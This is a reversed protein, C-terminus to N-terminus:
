YIKLVKEKVYQFNDFDTLAFGDKLLQGFKASVNKHVISSLVMQQYDSTASLYLKETEGQYPATLEEQANLIIPSTKLIKWATSVNNRITQEYRGSRSYRLGTTYISERNDSLFDYFDELKEYEVSKTPVCRGKLTGMRKAWDFLTFTQVGVEDVMWALYENFNAERENNYAVFHGVDEFTTQFLKSDFFDAIGFPVPIVLEDVSYYDGDKDPILSGKKSM